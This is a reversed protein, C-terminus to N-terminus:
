GRFFGSGKWQWWVCIVKGRDQEDAYAGELLM